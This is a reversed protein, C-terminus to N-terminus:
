WCFKDKGMKQRMDLLEEKSTGEDVEVKRMEYSWPGKKVRVSMVQKSIPKTKSLEEMKKQYEQTLDEGAEV